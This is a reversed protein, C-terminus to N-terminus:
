KGLEGAFGFQSTVTLFISSEALETVTLNRMAFVNDWPQDFTALKYGPVNAKKPPNQKNPRSNKNVYLRPGGTLTDIITNIPSGSPGFLLEMSDDNIIAFGEASVDITKTLKDGRRNIYTVQQGVFWKTKSM